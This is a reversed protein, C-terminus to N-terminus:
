MWSIGFPFLRGKMKERVEAYAEVSILNDLEHPDAHLDYLCEEVYHDAGADQYPDKGPAVVSYKWRRTRVSKQISIRIM